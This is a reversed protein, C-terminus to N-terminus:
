EEPPVLFINADSFALPAYTKVTSRKACTYLQINRTSHLLLSICYFYLMYCDISHKAFHETRLLSYNFVIVTYLSHHLLLTNALSVCTCTMKCPPSATNSTSFGFSNCCTNSLSCLAFILISTFFLADFIFPFADM